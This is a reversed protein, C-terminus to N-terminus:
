VCVCVCGYVCVCVCVCMRVCARVCVCVCVRACVCVCMGACVCVCVHMCVCVCMRMAMRHLLGTKERCTLINCSELIIVKQNSNVHQHTCASLNCLSSGM